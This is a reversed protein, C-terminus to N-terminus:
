GLVLFYVVALIIRYIGFVTFNHRQVYGLFFKIAVLATIFAGVFGISLLLYQQSSFSSGAQLFDYGAAALMTPIALLFSFEVATKRKKGLALAGVITAASRSVGPIVAMTQCLGIIVAHKYSVSGITEVEESSDEKHYLDFLIIIIGGILLSWLVVQSNGLLYQKIWKYLFFSIVASPIFAAIIKKWSDFDRIYKKFYVVVVAVIAGLQIFIDFSKQFETDALGLVKATLILHGTSSIPLFETIGEIVSLLLAQFISM